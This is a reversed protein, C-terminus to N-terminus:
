IFHFLVLKQGQFHEQFLKFFFFLHKATFNCNPNKKIKKESMMRKNGFLIKYRVCHKFFIHILVQIPAETGEPPRLNYLRHIPRGCSVCIVEGFMKVCHSKQFRLVSGFFHINAGLIEEPHYLRWVPLSGPKITKGCKDNYVSQWVATVSGPHVQDGCHVVWLSAMGWWGGVRDGGGEGFLSNFITEETPNAWCFWHM